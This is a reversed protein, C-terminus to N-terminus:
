DSVVVIATSSSDWVAAAMLPSTLWAFALRVEQRTCNVHAGQAALEQDVLFMAADETLLPADAPTNAQAATCQTSWGVSRIIEAIIRVRKRQGRDREWVIDPLVEQAVVGPAFAAALDLPTLGARLAYVIDDAGWLSVGHTKIESLAEQQQTGSQSGILAAYKARYADRFKAAEFINPSKQLTTGSKCEFMVRYGMTGLPADAYGDPAGLGGVHTSLLGMASFADCVAIEFAEPNASDSAARQLRTILAETDAKPPAAHAPDDPWDDAPENIRFKHDETPVVVPKVGNAIQRDVYSWLNSSLNGVTESCPLHREQAIAWIEAPTRAKGDSLIASVTSVIEGHRHACVRRSHKLPEVAEGAAGAAPPLPGADLRALMDAFLDGCAALRAAFADLPVGWMDCSGLEDWTVPTAIRQRQMRVSYPLMSWRGEANSSVHIHVRGDDHVNAQKSFLDPYAAIAEAAIAHAWARVDKYMPGGTLPVFISVGGAADLVPITGYGKTHLLESVIHAGRRVTELLAGSTDAIPRELLIRAFHARLPDEPTPTWSYFEQAGIAALHAVHESTLHSYHGFYEAHYDPRRDASRAATTWVIPIRGFSQEMFPGVLQYHAVVADDISPPKETVTM